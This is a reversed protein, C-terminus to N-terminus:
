IFKMFLDNFKFLFMWNEDIIEFLLDDGFV